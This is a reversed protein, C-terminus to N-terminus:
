GEENRKLADRYIECVQERLSLPEIVKLSWSRSMIEMVPFVLSASSFGM